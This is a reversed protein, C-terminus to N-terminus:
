RKRKRNKRFYKKLKKAFKNLPLSQLYVKGPGEVTTFFMGEGGFIMNKLGGVRSIDYTVTEQFAAVHGTDVYLMQGQQLEYETIEGCLELFVMGPGTIKQMVMGEGGYFGAGLNRTFHAELTVSTQACLFGDKQCIISQGEELNLPIIKGPHEAAVSIIGTGQTCSYHNLFFNEGMYSRLLSQFFGGRTKTEMEVNPSRWAMGGLQTFITDGPSLQIDAVQLTTGRIKYEM